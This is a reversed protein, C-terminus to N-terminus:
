GESRGTMAVRLPTEVLHIPSGDEASLEYVALVLESGPQTSRDPAVTLDFSGRSGSGSTATVTAQALVAGGADRLELQFVAEFTNATGTVRQPFSVQEGFAPREVLITPSLQELDARTLPLSVPVGEAGVTEVPRGDLEFAVARVSPFQTLTFVVQAIRASTSRRDGASDLEESLDVTAIGEEIRVGNLGTNRPLESSLGAAQERESPGALLAELARRAVAATEPVVRSAAALRGDQLFYVLLRRGDERREGEVSSSAGPEPESLERPERGCGALLLAALLVLPWLRCLASM